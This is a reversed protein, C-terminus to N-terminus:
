GLIIYIINNPHCILIMDNISIESKEIFLINHRKNEIYYVICYLVGSFCLFFSVSLSM